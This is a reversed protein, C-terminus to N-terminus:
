SRRVQDFRPAQGEGIGTEKALGLHSRDLHYYRVYELLLRRLHAEGFPVIHDLLERRCSENWRECLGNQWPSRYSTRKPKIGMSRVAADVVDGFLSDNDHIMHRPVDDGPFAERLQQVVWQTGPHATVNVHLIRRSAHHIVVLVYLVRFTATPVTLFDMAAIGDAHNRLFAKWREVSGSPAPRRPMYRQVTREAVEFDLKLLEGHIRPAGWTPNEVAM